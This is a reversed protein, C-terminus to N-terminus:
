YAEPEAVTATEVDIKTDEETDAEAEEEVLGAAKAM